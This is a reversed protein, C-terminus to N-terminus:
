LNVLDALKFVPPVLNDKHAEEIYSVLKAFAIGHNVAHIDSKKSTKAERARNCLAVLCQLHYQSDQAILDGTSLKALLQKDQLKLACQRVKSDIGFTLAKCLFGECFFYTEVSTSKKEWVRVLLNIIIVTKPM